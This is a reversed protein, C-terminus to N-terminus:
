EISAKREASITELNNRELFAIYSISCLM